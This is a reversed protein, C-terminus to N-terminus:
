LRSHKGTHHQYDNIKLLLHSDAMPFAVSKIGITVDNSVYFQGRRPKQLQLALKM